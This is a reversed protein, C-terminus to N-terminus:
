DMPAVQLDNKIKAKMFYGGSWGVKARQAIIIEKKLEINRCQSM